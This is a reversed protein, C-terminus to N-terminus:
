GALFNLGRLIAADYAPTYDNEAGPLTELETEIGAQNFLEVMEAINDHPILEDMEGTIIYGRLGARRDQRLLVGWGSLEDILPGAPAIALFRNTDLAGKLTLWIATEGGLSHGALVVQWPNIAYHERLTQYDRKVERQAIERDDWVHAGKMIAQSSQPAAVLWGIAAAPKWFDISSQVTGGNTHLGILLPCAAGGSQCKGEPRLTYLPFQKEQDREAAEQNAALLAEFRPEGQLSQLSPSNRLLLESFWSGHKLAERLAEITSEADGNRASLIIRWYDFLTRREPFRELAEAALELAINYQEERFLEQLQSYLDVFSPEIM